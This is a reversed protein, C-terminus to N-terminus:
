TLVNMAPATSIGAYERLMYRISHFGIPRLHVPHEESIQEAIDLKRQM